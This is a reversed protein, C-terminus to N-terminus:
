IYKEIIDYFTQFDIPKSIYDDMGSDLFNEKDGMMAYATMAIIPIHIGIVNESDRIAMTTKLGNLEPMQIDMLILDVIQCELIKLAENGNFASIYNYGKKALLSSILRQNIENDDVILITKSYPYVVEDQSIDYYKNPSSSYQFDENFLESENSDTTTHNNNKSPAFEATFYFCSGQGKTSNVWISGNMMNVIQKSIALGLGTGGYKKTYSDDVQSFNKFLKDMKDEPIGIGTDSVSFQARIIGDPAQIRKACLIITGKETFKLANSLLNMLIQNLRLPDSIIDIDSLRPDIFYMVEIFKEEALISFNKILKKIKEELNFSELDLKFKGAEIKSIDLIDNVIDLLHRSSTKVMNLYEKQEDTLDTMLALDTMGMIGNIPTRIEHSMNALFKSKSSNAEEASIKAKKLEKESEIKKTIDQVQCLISSLEGQENLIPTTIMDFYCIGEKNINSNPRKVLVYKCTIRSTQKKIIKEKVEKAMYPSEFFNDHKFDTVDNIKFMKCFSKNASIAVGNADFLEIGIPSQEYISRFRKESNYLEQHLKKNETIDRAIACAGVIDGYHNRIPSINVSLYIEEGQVTLVKLEFNKIEQGKKIKNLLKSAEEIKKDPALIIFNKGVIEKKSYGYIRESAKNWSIIEGDLDTAIIADESSDVISALQLANKISEGKHLRYNLILVIQDELKLFQGNFTWHINRIKVEKYFHDSANTSNRFSIFEDRIFWLTNKSKEKSIDINRNIFINHFMEYAADNLEKICGNTDMLILPVSINSLFSLNEYFNKNSIFMDDM